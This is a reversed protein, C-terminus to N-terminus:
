VATGGNPMKVPLNNTIQHGRCDEHHAKYHEINLQFLRKFLWYQVLHSALCTTIQKWEFIECKNM